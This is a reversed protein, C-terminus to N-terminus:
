TVTSINVEAFAGVPTDSLLTGRNGYSIHAKSILTGALQSMSASQWQVEVKLPCMKIPLGPIFCSDM